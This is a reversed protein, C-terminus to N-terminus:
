LDKYVDPYRTKLQDIVENIMLILHLQQERSIGKLKDVPVDHLFCLDSLKALSSDKKTICVVKLRIKRADRAVQLCRQTEGSSSLIILTYGDFRSLMQTESVLMIPVGLYLLQRQLYQASINSAGLGFVMLKRRDQHITESVKVAGEFEIKRLIYETNSYYRESSLNMRKIDESVAYKMESFGKFGLIKCTRNVTAQSTFSEEAVKIATSEPISRFNAELYDLVAAECKSVPSDFNRERLQHIM